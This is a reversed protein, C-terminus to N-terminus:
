DTVQVKTVATRYNRAPTSAWQKPDTLVLAGVLQGDKTRKFQAQGRVPTTGIKRWPARTYATLQASYSAKTNKLSMVKYGQAQLQSKISAGLQANTLAKEDKLVPEKSLYVIIKSKKATPQISYLNDSLKQPTGATTPVSLKLKGSWVSVVKTKSKQALAPPTWATLVVAISLSVISPFKM